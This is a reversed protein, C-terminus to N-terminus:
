KTKFKLANQKAQEIMEKPIAKPELKYKDSDQAKVTLQRKIVKKISSTAILDDKIRIFKKTNLAEQLNDFQEFPVTYFTDDYTYVDLVYQEKYIQLNM